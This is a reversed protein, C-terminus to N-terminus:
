FFALNMLFSIRKFYVETQTVRRAQIVGNHVYIGVEQKWNTLDNNNSGKSAFSRVLNTMRISSTIRMKMLYIRFFLVLASHSESKAWIAQGAGAAIHPLFLAAQGEDKWHLIEDEISCWALDIRMIFFDWFAFVRLQWRTIGTSISTLYIHSTKLFWCYTTNWRLWFWFRFCINAWSILQLVLLDLFDRLGRISMNSSSENKSHKILFRIIRCCCGVYLLMLAHTTWRGTPEFSWETQKQSWQKVWHSQKVM